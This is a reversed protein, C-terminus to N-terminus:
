QERFARAVQDSLPKILYSLASRRDTEIMVDAPMGPLLLAGGLKKEAGDALLIRVLYYEASNAQDRHLDASIQEVSGDLDPTTRQNLSTM